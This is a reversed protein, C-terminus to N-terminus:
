IKSIREKAYEDALFVLSKNIENMIGILRDLPGDEENLLIELQSGICDESCRNNFKKDSLNCDCFKCTENM